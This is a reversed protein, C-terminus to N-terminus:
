APPTSFWKICLIRFILNELFLKFNESLVSNKPNQIQAVQFYSKQLWVLSQLFYFKVKIKLLFILVSKRKLKIKIQLMKQIPKQQNKTFISMWLFQKKKNLNKKKPIKQFQKQLKKSIKVQKLAYTLSTGVEPDFIGRLLAQDYLFDLM